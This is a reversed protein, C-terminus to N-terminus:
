DALGILGLLRSLTGRRSATSWTGNGRCGAAAPVAAICSPRAAGVRGAGPCQGCDHPTLRAQALLSPLHAPMRAARPGWQMEPGSSIWIHRVPM